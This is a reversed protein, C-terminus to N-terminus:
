QQPCGAGAVQSNQSAATSMAPIISILCMGSEALKTRVRKTLGVLGQGLLLSVPISEFEEKL